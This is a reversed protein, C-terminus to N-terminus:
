NLAYSIISTLHWGGCAECYYSRCPAYGSEEKIKECNFFMFNDAKQKLCLYCRIKIANTSLFISSKHYHAPQKEVDEMCINNGDYGYWKIIKARKYIIKRMAM